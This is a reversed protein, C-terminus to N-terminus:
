ESPAQGFVRSTLEIDRIDSFMRCLKALGETLELAMGPTRILRWMTAKLIQNHLVDYSLEDYDCPM